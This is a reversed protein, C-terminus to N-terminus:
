AAAVRVDLSAVSPVAILAAEGPTQDHDGAGGGADAGGHAEAAVAAPASTM